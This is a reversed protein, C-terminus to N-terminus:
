FSSCCGGRANMGYKTQSYMAIGNPWPSQESEHDSHTRWMAFQQYATEFMAEEYVTTPVTKRKQVGYPNGCIIDTCNYATDVRLKLIKYEEQWNILSEGYIIPSNRYLSVRTCFRSHDHTKEHMVLLTFRLPGNEEVEISEM